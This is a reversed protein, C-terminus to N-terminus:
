TIKSIFYASERPSRVGRYTYRECFACHVTCVRCHQSLETLITVLSCALRSYFLSKIGPLLVSKEGVDVDARLGMWDDIWHVGPIRDGPAFHVPAHLQGSVVM